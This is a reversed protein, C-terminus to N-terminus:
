WVEPFHKAALFSCAWVVACAAACSLELSALGIPAFSASWALLVALVASSRAIMFHTPSAFGFSEMRRRRAALGRALGCLGFAALTALSVIGLAAGHALAALATGIRGEIDRSLGNQGPLDRLSTELSDGLAGAAGFIGRHDRIRWAGPATPWLLCWACLALPAILLGVLVM